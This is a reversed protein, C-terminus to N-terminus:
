KNRELLAQLMNKIDTFDQKLSQVDEKITNIEEIKAQQQQLKRRALIYSDLGNLDTNILSGSNGPHPKYDNKM